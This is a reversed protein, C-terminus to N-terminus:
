QRFASCAKRFGLCIGMISHAALAGAITATSHCFSRRQLSTLRLSVLGEEGPVTPTSTPRFLLENISGANAHGVSYLRAPTKKSAKLILATKLHGTLPWVM